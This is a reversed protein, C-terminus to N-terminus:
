HFFYSMVKAILYASKTWDTAIARHGGNLTDQGAQEIPKGAQPDEKGLVLDAPNGKEELCRVHAVIAMDPPGLAQEAEFRETGQRALVDALMAKPPKLEIPNADLQAVLDIDITKDPARIEGVLFRVPGFGHPNNFSVEGAHWRYLFVFHDAAVGYFEKM